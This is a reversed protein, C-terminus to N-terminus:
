RTMPTVVSTFSDWFVLLGMPGEASRMPISLCSKEGWEIMIQRSVPDLGPDSITELLPTGTALLRREVPHQSLPLPSGLRNWGTPEKEWMARPVIADIDRMYEYAICESARIVEAARDTLIGLAQELDDASTVAQSSELMSVLRLTSAAQAARAEAHQISLAILRCVSLANTVSDPTITRKPDDNAADVLGVVRDSAVLPIALVGPKGPEHAPRRTAAASAGAEWSSLDARTSDPETPHGGRVAGALCTLSGNPSLSYIHVNSVELLAGLRTCTSWALGDSDVSTLDASIDNLAAHTRMLAAQSRHLRATVWAVTEAVVVCLVGIFVAFTLVLPLDHHTLVLPVVYAAAFLPLTVLTAGRRHSLGVATFCVCFMAGFAYAYVGLFAIGVGILAFGLPVLAHTCYRPWSNWPLLWSAIGCVIAVSTAIILAVTHAGQEVPLGLGLLGLLGCVFFTLGALRGITRPSIGLDHGVAERRWRRNWGIRPRVQSRLIDLTEIVMPLNM